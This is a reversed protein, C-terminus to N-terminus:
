GMSETDFFVKDGGLDHKAHYLASDSRRVMDEVDQGIDGDKKLFRAVGISLTTPTLNLRNYNRRIREAVLDAQERPLHPLLVTFEDGGLRFVADVEKRTSARLIDAFQVLLLDGAQHGKQDNYEKFHDIDFYFLFLPHDYRVSRVAEKRVIKHFCRRNLLGTLPDQTALRELEQRMFRERILRNLKAELENLTFPKTIFDAAGAAIVDTYKYKMTHGTIAIVDVGDRDKILHRILEMGDMRPMDMDTVVISFYTGDMKEVADVGDKATVVRHGMYTLAEALLDCVQQEDDVVLINQSALRPKQERQHM